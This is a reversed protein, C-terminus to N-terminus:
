NQINASFYFGESTHANQKYRNYFIAHLKKIGFFFLGYKNFVQIIFSDMLKSVAKFGIKVM